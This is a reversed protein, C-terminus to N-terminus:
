DGRRETWWRLLLGLPLAVILMGLGLLVGIANWRVGIGNTVYDFGRGELVAEVQPLAIMALGFLALIVAMLWKRWKPRPRDSQRPPNTCGGPLIDNSV